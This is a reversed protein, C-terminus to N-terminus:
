EYLTVEDIDFFDFEPDFSRDRSIMSDIWQEAGTRTTFSSLVCMNPNVEGTIVRGSSVVFVSKIM